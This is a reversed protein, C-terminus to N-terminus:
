SRRAGAPPSSTVTATSISSTAPTFGGSAFATANAKADGAYGRMVDHGRIVIEGSAGTPVLRGDEDM